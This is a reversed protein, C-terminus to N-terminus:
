FFPYLKKELFNNKSKQAFFNTAVLKGWETKKHQHWLLLKKAFIHPIFQTSLNKLLDNSPSIRMQTHGFKTEKVGFDSNWFFIHQHLEREETKIEKNSQNHEAHFNKYLTSLARAVNQKKSM